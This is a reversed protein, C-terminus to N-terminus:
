DDSIRKAFQRIVAGRACPLRTSSTHASFCPQMSIFWDRFLIVIAACPPLFHYKGTKFKHKKVKGNHQKQIKDRRQLPAVGSQKEGAQDEVAPPLGQVHKQHQKGDGHIIEKSPHNSFIPFRVAAPRLPIHDGSNRDIQRNEAEELVGIQCQIGHPGQRAGLQSVQIHCQGHTNGEIRELRQGVDDVHIPHIGVFLPIKGCEAGVHGQEGLQDGARDDAILVHVILKAGAGMGSLQKGGTHAGQGGTHAFFDKQGIRRPLDPGPDAFGRFSRHRRGPQADNHVGELDIEIEGAVRIHGDAQAFHHAEGETLIEIIGIHRIGNRIEPPTPM